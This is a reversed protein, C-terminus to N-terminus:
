ESEAPASATAPTSGNVPMQQVWELASRATVLEAEAKTKLEAYRTARAQADDVAAQAQKVKRDKTEQTFM